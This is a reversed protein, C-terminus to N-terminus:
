SRRFMVRGLVFALAASVGLATWPQQHVYDNTVEATQRARQSMSDGAEAASAKAAAIRTNLKFRAQALDNGSLTTIDKVLREIDTLFRHFAGSVGSAPNTEGRAAAGAVIPGIGMGLGNAGHEGTDTPNHM